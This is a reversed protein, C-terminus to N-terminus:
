SKEWDNPYDIWTLCPNFMASLKGRRPIWQRTFQERSCGCAKIHHIEFPQPLIRTYIHPGSPMPIYGCACTFYQIPSIKFLLRWWADWVDRLKRM